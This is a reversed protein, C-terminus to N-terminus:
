GQDSQIAHHKDKRKDGFLQRQELFARQAKYFAELFAQQDEPRVPDAYDIKRRVQAVIAALTEKHRKYADPGKARNASRLVGELTQLEFAGYHELQYSLFQFSPQAASPPRVAKSMDQLLIPKPLHIVYTGAIIDGLRQRRRNFLPVALVGMVWLLALISPLLAEANLTLILTGPLFIEAEKMLNRVVLSQTTLAQGDVSVVKIKMLRKGITQGNWILESVAYYPIRIFFFLMAAIAIATNASVIDLALVLLFVALAGIGTILLDTFQAATRVGVGAIRFYLPVGEPPLLRDLAPRTM